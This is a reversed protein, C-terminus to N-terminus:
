PQPLKPTEQIRNFEFLIEMEQGSITANINDENGWYKIKNPFDNTPNECIFSLSDISVLDFIVPQEDEPMMVELAWTDESMRLKMNEQFITDGYQMTLGLGRYETGSIKQWLELTEKGDEENSRKWQGVLWEFNEVPEEIEESIAKEERKQQNNQSCSFYLVMILFILVSNKM